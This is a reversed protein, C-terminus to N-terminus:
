HLWRRQKAIMTLQNLEMMSTHDEQWLVVTVFYGGTNIGM